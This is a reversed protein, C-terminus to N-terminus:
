GDILDLDVEKFLALNGAGTNMNKYICFPIVDDKFDVVEVVHGIKIDYDGSCDLIKMKRGIDDGTAALEFDKVTM